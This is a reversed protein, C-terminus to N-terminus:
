DTDSDEGNSFKDLLKQIQSFIWMVAKNVAHRIKYHFLYAGTVIGLLYVIWWSM